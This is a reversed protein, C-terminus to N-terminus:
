TILFSDSDLTSADVGKLVAITQFGADGVVGDKDISVRTKSGAQRVRVFDNFKEFPSSSTFEVGSLLERLDILDRNVNFDDITDRGHELSTFVFTDRGTNGRLIDNGEGGILIDSKGGGILRDRGEEGILLDRGGRGEIEDNGPGGFIRDAGGRANIRDDGKRARVTEGRQTGRFVDDENELVVKRESGFGDEPAPLPNGLVRSPADGVREFEIFDFARSEGQDTTFIVEVEDQNYINVGLAVKPEQRNGANAVNGSVPPTTLSTLTQFEVVTDGGVKIEYTGAGDEEDFYALFLDYKGDEFTFTTSAGATVNPSTDKPRLHVLSLVTAGTDGILEQQYDADINQFAEAEIKLRTEM